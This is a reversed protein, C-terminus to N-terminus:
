CEQQIYRLDFDASFTKFISASIIPVTIVPSFDLPRSEMGADDLFSLRSPFLAVCIKIDIPRISNPTEM